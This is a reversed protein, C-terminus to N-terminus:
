THSLLWCRSLITLGCAGVGLLREKSSLNKCSIKRLRTWGVVQKLLAGLMNGPAQEKGAAFDFYFCTVAIDQGRARDCLTDVVLSSRHSSTLMTKQRTKKEGPSYRKGFIRRELGRIATAFCQRMGLNVKAIMVGGGGFSGLRSLGTGWKTSGVPRSTRIGCVPNLLHYMQQPLGSNYKLLSRFLM